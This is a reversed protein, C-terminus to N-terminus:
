QIFGLIEQYVARSQLSHGLNKTAFFQANPWAQYIARAGEFAAIDDNEDHIILGSIALDKLFKALTFYDIPYEFTQEFTDYYAAQAKPNLGLQQFFVQTVDSLKNPVGMLVMKEVPIAELERYYYSFAIGAFSHGVLLDPQFYRMVEALVQAYLIGNVRKWASNGHAPVDLAIIQFDAQLLLNTLLRWRAANSNFGHALLVKKTGKGWTYCQVKKGDLSLDVWNAQDLFAQEKKTFTKGKIPRCFLDLEIRGTLKPSLYALGNIAQGVVKEVPIM